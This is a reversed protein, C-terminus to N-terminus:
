LQEEIEQIDEEFMETEALSAEIKKELANRKKTHTDIKMHSETLQDSIRHGKHESVVCKSCIYLQDNECFYKTKKQPHKLCFKDVFSEEAESQRQQMNNNM